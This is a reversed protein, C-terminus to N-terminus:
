GSAASNGEVKVRAGNTLRYQGEVVIKEGPSLGKEIVAVGDQVATVAIERREATGDQKIVYAFKGNPGDM